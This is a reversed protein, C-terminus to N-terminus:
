EGRAVAVVCALQVLAVPLWLAREWPSPTIANLVAAVAMLAVVAWVLRRSAARWRPLALGARAAVVAGSLLLALASAGVAVRMRPPLQGPFAGGMTLHGWPGGGPQEAREHEDDDAELQREDAARRPPV